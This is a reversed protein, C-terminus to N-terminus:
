GHKEIWTKVVQAVRKPDQDIMRRAFELRKEYSQPAALMLTDDAGDLTLRDEALEGAAAAASTKEKQKVSDQTPTKGKELTEKNVLAKMVPRLVGFILLVVVLAAMAQKLLGTFWDQEWLPSPPLSEIAESKFTVNSVTVRDGRSVDFGVAEKVLDSFRSIDEDSFPKSAPSGDEQLSHQNDIVVAVTLRRLVGSALRSHSITKDLEYNRTATKSASAPSQAEAAQVTEGPQGTQNAPQTIIEPATGAAPPQNSLAGPVGQVPATRNQEEATQESRLAPLDPNFLEQTRETVTFDIDATVQTRLGERGLLPTLINEIRQILHDEVRKKYDFQNSTLSMDDASNQANLLRGRQDVLTVQGAELHPVSSAVLHVIAEIQGKELDHGAYLDVVVSASPTKAQRVFVSQKPLALHVRAAKISQITMISRAIEGELARQYRVTEVLQSTGFGVEKDLLEFGQENSKPLGQRALKFRMEHVRGEPVKIAGTTADIQYDVNLKELQELIEGVEKEPLGSVLLGYDPARSWLVVAVGIAIVLACGLVLGFQRGAPLKILSRVIPPLRDATVPPQGADAPVLTKGESSSLQM